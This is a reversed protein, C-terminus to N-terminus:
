PSCSHLQGGAQNCYKQGADRLKEFSVVDFIAARLGVDQGEVKIIRAFKKHSGLAVFRNLDVVHLLSPVVLAQEALFIADLQGSEGM